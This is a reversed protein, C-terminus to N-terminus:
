QATVVKMGPVLGVGSVQVEGSAFVGLSVGILRHAGSPLVAELGYGGGALALLATVPVALTDRVAQVALSIQVPVGSSTGTVAPHLPAITLQSPTARGTGGAAPLQPPGVSTVVGPTSAQSPLIISVRQGVRAAPMDPTVAVTVVRRTSTVLYPQQGPTAPEGPAVQWGGVRVRGALFILQGLPVQGTVTMGNAAQWREVALACAPTYQDTAVSFLGTAVHEAILGAQLQQIDPGDTMGLEFSRWAPVAGAM